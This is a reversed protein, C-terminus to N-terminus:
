DSIRVARGCGVRRLWGRWARLLYHGCKGELIQFDRNGLLATASKVPADRDSNARLTAPSKGKGLSKIPLDSSSQGFIFRM